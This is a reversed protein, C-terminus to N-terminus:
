ASFKPNVLTICSQLLALARQWFLLCNVALTKSRQQLYTAFPSGAFQDSMLAASAVRVEQKYITSPAEEVLAKPLRIRCDFSGMVTVCNDAESPLPSPLDKGPLSPLTQNERAQRLKVCPVLRSIACCDCRRVDQDILSPFDCRGKDNMIVLRCADCLQGITEQSKLQCRILARHVVYRRYWYLRLRGVVADLVEKLVAVTRDVRPIGHSMKVSHHLFLFLQQQIDVPLSKNANSWLYCQLVDRLLRHQRLQDRCICVKMLDLYLTTLHEGPTGKLFARFSKMGAVSEMERHVDDGYRAVQCYSFYGTYTYQEILM